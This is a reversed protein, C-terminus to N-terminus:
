QGRMHMTSMFLEDAELCQIMDQTAFAQAAQWNIDHAPALQSAACMKLNSFPFLSRGITSQCLGSFQFNIIFPQQM